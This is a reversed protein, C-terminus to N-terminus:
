IWKKLTEYVSIKIKIAAVTKGNMSVRKTLRDTDTDIWGLGRWAILKNEAMEYENKNLIGIILPKEAIIFGGKVTVKDNKELYKVIALFENILNEIM